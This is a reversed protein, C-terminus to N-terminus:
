GFFALVSSGFHEPHELFWAHRGGPDLELRARPGLRRAIYRANAPPVAHDDAGNTVLVPVKVKRWDPEPAEWYAHEAEDYAEYVEPTVTTQPVQVYDALFADQAAKGDASPSFLVDLLKTTDPNPDAFLAVIEPPPLVSKAGGPTAGTIALKSLSGPHRSALLLGIEGGTSWGFVEPRRLGLATILGAADDSLDPLTFHPTPAKTKGLGRNDYITVQHHAALERLLTAPWLSMPAAQGGVLLLDPGTGFQRFAMTVKGVEVTRVPGLFAVDGPLRSGAVVEIRPSTTAISTSSAPGPGSARNSSGDSCGAVMVAFSLVV